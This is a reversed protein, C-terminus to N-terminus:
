QHNEATLPLVPKLKYFCILHYLSDPVNVFAIERKLQHAHRAWSILLALSTSDGTQTESLDFSITKDTCHSIYAQGERELAICAACDLTGHVSINDPSNVTLQAM